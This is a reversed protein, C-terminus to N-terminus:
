IGGSSKLTTSGTITEKYDNLPIVSLVIPFNSSGGPFVLLVMDGRFITGHINGPKGLSVEDEQKLEGTLPDNYVISVKRTDENYYSITGLVPLMQNSIRKVEPSDKVIKMIEEILPSPM